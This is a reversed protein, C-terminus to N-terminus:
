KQTSLCVHIGLHDSVPDKTNEICKWEIIGYAKNSEPLPCQKLTKETIFIHDLCMNRHTEVHTSTDNGFVDVFNIDEKSLITNLNNLLESYLNDEKSKSDINFDGTVIVKINSSISNFLMEKMFNTLEKIQLIKNSPNHADFHTDFVHLVDGNDNQLDIVSYLVGKANVFEVLSYNSFIYNVRKIIPYTSLIMLGSDQCMPKPKDSEAVYRLSKFNDTLENQEKVFKLILEKSSNDFGLWGVNGFEFVEQLLVIDFVPKNNKKKDILYSLFSKTREIKNPPMFTSTNTLWINHTLINIKFGQDEQSLM